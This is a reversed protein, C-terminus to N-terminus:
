QLCSHLLFFSRCILYVTLEHTCQDFRNTSRSRMMHLSVFFFILSFSFSIFLKIETKNTCNYCFEKNVLNTGTKKEVWKKRDLISQVITYAFFVPAWWRENKIIFATQSPKSTKTVAGLCLDNSSSRIFSFLVFMKVVGVVIFSVLLFQPSFFNYKYCAM